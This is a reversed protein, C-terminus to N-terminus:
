NKMFPRRNKSRLFLGHRGKLNAGAKVFSPWRLGKNPLTKLMKWLARPFFLPFSRADRRLPLSARAARGEPATPM